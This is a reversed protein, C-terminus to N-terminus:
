GIDERKANDQEIQIRATSRECDGLHIIREIPAEDRRSVREPLQMLTAALRLAFSLRLEECVLEPPEDLPSQGKLGTLPYSQSLHALM